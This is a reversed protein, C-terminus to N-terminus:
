LLQSFGRCVEINMDDIWAYPILYFKFGKSNRLKIEIENRPITYLVPLYKGNEIETM